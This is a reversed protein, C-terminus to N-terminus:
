NNLCGSYQLSWRDCATVNHRALLKLQHPATSRAVIDDPGGENKRAREISALRPGIAARRCALMAGIAHSRAMSLERCRITRWGSMRCNVLPFSVVMLSSCLLAFLLALVCDTDFSAGVFASEDSITSTAASALASRSSQFYISSETAQIMCCLM